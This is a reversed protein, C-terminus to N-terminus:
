MNSTRNTHFEAHYNKVFNHQNNTTKNSIVYGESTTLAQLQDSVAVPFGALVYLWSYLKM